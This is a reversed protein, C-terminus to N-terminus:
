AKYSFCMCVKSLAHSAIERFRVANEAFRGLGSLLAKRIGSTLAREKREIFERGDSSISKVCTIDPGECGGYTKEHFTQGM